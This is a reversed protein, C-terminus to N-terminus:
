GREIWHRLEASSLEDKPLFGWAGARRAAAANSSDSDSSILMVRVPWPLAVLQEALRFGDGDPLGIDVLATDPRVETARTLAEVVSGACGVVLHGWSIVVRSALDRFGEDDDVILM